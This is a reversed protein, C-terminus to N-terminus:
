SELEREIRNARLVIATVTLISALLTLAVAILALYTHQQLM